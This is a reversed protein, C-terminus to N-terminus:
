RKLAESGVFVALVLDVVVKSTEGVRACGPNAERVYAMRPTDFGPHARTPSVLLTTASKANVTKTPLSASLLYTAIETQTGQGVCGALLVLSVLITRHIWNRM